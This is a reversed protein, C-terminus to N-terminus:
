FQLPPNERLLNVDKKGRGVLPGFFITPNTIFKEIKERLGTVFRFMEYIAEDNQYSKQLGVRCCRPM